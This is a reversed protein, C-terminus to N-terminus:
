IDIIGVIRQHRYRLTLLIVFPEICYTINGKISSEHIKLSRYDYGTSVSEDRLEVPLQSPLRGELELFAYRLGDAPVEFVLGPHVVDGATIVLCTDEPFIQHM